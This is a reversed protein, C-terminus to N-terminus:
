MFYSSVRILADAKGGTIESLEDYNTIGYIVMCIVLILLVPWLIWRKNGKVNKDGRKFHM